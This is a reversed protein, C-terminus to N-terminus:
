AYGMLDTRKKDAAMERHMLSDKAAEKLAQAFLEECAKKINEVSLTSGDPKNQEVMRGFLEIRESAYGDIARSLYYITVPNASSSQLLEILENAKKALELFKDKDMSLAETAFRIAESNETSDDM